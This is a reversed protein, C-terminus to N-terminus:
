ERVHRRPARRFGAVGHGRRHHQDIVGGEAGQRLDDALLRLLFHQEEGTARGFLSQLAAARRATSGSGSIAALEDLAADVDRLQLSPDAAADVASSRLASPGIGLRTQRIEGSLYSVAIELEEATLARLFAALTCTKASRSPTAAVQRSTAVLESLQM